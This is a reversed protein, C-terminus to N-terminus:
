YRKVMRFLLKLERHSTIIREQKFLGAEKINNLEQELAPKMYDYM